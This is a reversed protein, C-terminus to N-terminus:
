RGESIVELARETMLCLGIDEGTFWWVLYPFDSDETDLILGFDGDGVHRVLDGIKM